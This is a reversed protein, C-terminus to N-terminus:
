FRILRFHKTYHAQYDKERDRTTETDGKHILTGDARMKIVDNEDKEYKPDNIKGRQINFICPCAEFISACMVYPYGNAHHIYVGDFVDGDNYFRYSNDDNKKKVCLKPYQEIINDVTPFLNMYPLIKAIQKDTLPLPHGETRDDYCVLYDDAKKRAPDAQAYTQLCQAANGVLNGAMYGFPMPILATFLIRSINKGLSNVACASTKKNSSFLGTVQDSLSTDEYEDCKILEDACWEMLGDGVGYSLVEQIIAM